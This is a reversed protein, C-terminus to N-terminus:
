NSFTWHVLLKASPSEIIGFKLELGFRDDSGVVREGGLVGMLGFETRDEGNKPSELNVAFDAGLYPTWGSYDKGPRWLLDAALTLLTVNDGLGIELVPFVLRTQPLLDGFQGQGGLVIQNPDVSVGVRPGFGFFGLANASVGAPAVVLLAAVILPLIRPM